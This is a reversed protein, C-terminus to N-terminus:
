PPRPKTPRSSTAARRIPTPHVGAVRLDVYPHNSYRGGGSARSVLIAVQKFPQYEPDPFCLVLASGFGAESLAYEMEKAYRGSGVFMDPVILVIMGYEGVFPACM